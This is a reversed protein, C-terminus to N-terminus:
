ISDNLKEAEEIYEAGSETTLVVTDSYERAVFEDLENKNRFQLLFLHTEADYMCFTNDHKEFYVYLTKPEEKNKSFWSLLIIGLIISGVIFLLIDM